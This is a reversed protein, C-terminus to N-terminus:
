SVRSATWRKSRALSPKSIRSGGSGDARKELRIKRKRKAERSRTNSHSARRPAVPFGNRACRRSVCPSGGTTGLTYMTDIADARSMVFVDETGLDLVPLLETLAAVHLYGNLTDLLMAIRAGASTSTAPLGGLVCVSDPLLAEIRAALLAAYPDLRPVVLAMQELPTGREAIEGVVWCLAADLEEALGAHEELQVTGDSGSSRPRDPDALVDPSAFLYTALLGRETNTEPRVEQVTFDGFRARVRELHASRRPQTALPCSVSAPFRQRLWSATATPEHGTVEALSSGEHLWRKPDAILRATAMAFFM